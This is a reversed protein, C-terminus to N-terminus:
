PMPLIQQIAQQITTDFYSGYPNVVIPAAGYNISDYGFDNCM